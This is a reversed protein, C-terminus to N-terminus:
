CKTRKNTWSKEFNKTSSAVIEADIVLSKGQNKINRFYHKPERELWDKEFSSRIKLFACINQHYEKADRWSFAPFM